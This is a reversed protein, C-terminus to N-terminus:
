SKQAPLTFRFASGKELGESEVWIRGGHMEVLSRTLALGIGTGPYRRSLSNEVQSFPEFIKELNEKEIGVGDDVVSIEVENREGGVGAIMRAGLCITGGDNTFKVANSLLNYLIQKVRLEDAVFTEPIDDAQIKLDINRAKAKEMIIAPSQELLAKLNFEWPKLELKGAEIKSIDLIENVLSLLHLSSQHVDTLYEEQVKNLDGFDKGLMLETFGIIHNLPTRLEHSMNSLFESKAANSAEAAIKGQYLQEARKRESIDRSVGLIAEPKGHENRLFTTTVEAWVSSGDKCYQLIELTASRNPDSGGGTAEKELEEALRKSVRDLSEPTLTKQLSIAMAEEASYGRMREVSPSVYTFRLSELNLIWITDTVNEALLRYRLESSKLDAMYTELQQKSETLQRNTTELELALRRAEDYKEQIVQNTEQLDHIARRYASYRQFVRKWLPPRERSDWRIRYLCGGAGQVPNDPWTREGYIEPAVQCEIEEVEAMPMDFITPIAALVGRTYDCDLRTKQASNHYRDELLVWSDGAEHIYVDGNAKLLKNYKPAQAYILRPNGILRAIWDLLGLPQLRKGELNMQYVANKDGLIEMMRAYLVHLFSHSVWNNTDMLYTEDLVLGDLLDGLSGNMKRVYLILTRTVRCSIERKTASCLDM